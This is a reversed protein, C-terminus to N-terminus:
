SVPLIVALRQGLRKAIPQKLQAVDALEISTHKPKERPMLPDDRHVADAVFALGDRRAIDM